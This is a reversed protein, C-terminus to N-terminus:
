YVACLKKLKGIVEDAKEWSYISAGSALPHGGGDYEAALQNIIPGKSRLRVRIQDEEEVFIVWACIGKVDGLSGVLQSTESATVDFQKLISKDIKIFAAGHEDITFNQYMYGKLHLLRRDEEYMEAFLKTRDFDHKILGSAIEFTRVTASPFLFRGTDGVIGAFLLRACADSMKWRYNERGEEFLLYIMESTSSSETDVWRVDGYPDVNPHHDIKLIYAGEKYFEADIRETNGTDTIIVLAGEYDAKDVADQEALYSLMEDHAGAAYVKKEPYNTKILEKLGVQSGYADPDPRVHRHIIIKDYKEITDIIQRKM